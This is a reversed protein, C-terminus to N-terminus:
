YFQRLRGNNIKCRQRSYVNLGQIKIALKILQNIIKKELQIM